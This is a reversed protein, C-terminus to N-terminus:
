VWVPTVSINVFLSSKTIVGFNELAFALESHGDAEKETTLHEAPRERHSIYPFTPAKEWATGHIKTNNYCKRKNKHSEKLCSDM